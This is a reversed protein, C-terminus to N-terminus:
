CYTCSVVQIMRYSLWLRAICELLNVATPYVSLLVFSGWLMAMQILPHARM